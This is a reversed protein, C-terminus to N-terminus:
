AFPEFETVGMLMGIAKAPSNLFKENFKMAEVSYESYSILDVYLMYDAYLEERYEADTETMELEGLLNYLTNVSQTLETYAAAKEMPNESVGLQHSREQVATLAKTDAEIYKGALTVMNMAEERCDSLDELLIYYHDRVADRERILSFGSGLPISLVILLIMCVIARARGKVKERKKKM